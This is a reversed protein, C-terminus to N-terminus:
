HADVAIPRFVAPATMRQHSWNLHSVAPEHLHAVHYRAALEAIVHWDMQHWDQPEAPLPCPGLQSPDFKTCGLAVRMEGLMFYEFTCWPRPCTWLQQVAGPWPLVDHEVLIFPKGEAWLQRILADYSFTGELREYRPSLGQMELNLRMASHVVSDNLENAFPVIINPKVDDLAWKETAM